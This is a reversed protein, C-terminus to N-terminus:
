WEAALPHLLHPPYLVLIFASSLSTNIINTSIPPPFPFLFPSLCCPLFPIPTSNLPALSPTLHSLFQFQQGGCCELGLFM